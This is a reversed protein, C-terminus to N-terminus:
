ALGEALMQADGPHSDPLVDLLKLGTSVLNM